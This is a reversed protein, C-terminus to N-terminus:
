LHIRAVVERQQRRGVEELAQLRDEAALEAPDESGITGQSLVGLGKSSNWFELSL